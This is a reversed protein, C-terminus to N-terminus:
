NDVTLITSIQGKTNSLANDRILFHESVRLKRKTKFYRLSPLTQLFITHKM